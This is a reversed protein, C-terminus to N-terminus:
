QVYGDSIRHSLWFQKMKEHAVSAGPKLLLVTTAPTSGEFLSYTDAILDAVFAIRKLSSNIPSAM